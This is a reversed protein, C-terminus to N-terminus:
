NVTNATWWESFFSLLLYNILYYLLAIFLKIHMLVEINLNKTYGLDNIQCAKQAFVCFISVFDM